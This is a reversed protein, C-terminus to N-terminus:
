WVWERFSTWYLSGQGQVAEAVMGRRRLISSVEEDWYLLNIVAGLMEVVAEVALLPLVTSLSKAGRALSWPMGM